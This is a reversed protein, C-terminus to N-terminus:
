KPATGLKRGRQSADEMNSEAEDLVRSQYKGLLGYFDAWAAPDHQKLAAFAALAEQIEPDWRIGTLVHILNIDLIDCLAVLKQLRVDQVPNSKLQQAFNRGLGADESAKSMSPRKDNKNRHDSTANEIEVVLRERWGDIPTKTM